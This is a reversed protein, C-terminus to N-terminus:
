NLIIGEHLQNHIDVDLKYIKKELSKLVKCDQKTIKKCDIHLFGMTQNLSKVGSSDIKNLYSDIECIWAEPINNFKIHPFNNELVKLDESLFDHRQKFIENFETLSIM